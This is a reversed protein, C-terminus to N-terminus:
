ILWEKFESEYGQQVIYHEYFKRFVDIEEDTPCEGSTNYYQISGTHKNFIAGVYSGDDMKKSVEMVKDDQFVIEFGNM